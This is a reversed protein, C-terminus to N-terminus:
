SAAAAALIPPPATQTAVATLVLTMTKVNQFSVFTSVSFPGGSLFESLPIVVLYQLQLLSFSSPLYCPCTSPSHHWSKPYFLTCYPRSPDTTLTVTSFTSPLPHNLLTYKIEQSHGVKTCTKLAAPPQAIQSFGRQFMMPEHHLRSPPYVLM